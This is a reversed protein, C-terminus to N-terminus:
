ALRICKNLQYYRQKESKYNRDVTDIKINFSRYVFEKLLDKERFM